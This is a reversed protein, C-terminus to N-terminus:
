QNWNEESVKRIRDGGALWKDLYVSEFFLYLKNDLIVFVNPNSNVTFGKSVAFAGYGGFQPAYKEPAQKFSDLHAPSAFYWTADKWQFSYADEGKVAANETFYAVADYGNIAEDSFLSTNVEAHSWSLFKIRKVTVVLLVGGIIVLVLLVWKKRLQMKSHNQTIYCKIGQM